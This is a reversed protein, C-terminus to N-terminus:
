RYRERGQAVITAFQRSRGALAQYEVWTFNDPRHERTVAYIWTLERPARGPLDRLSWADLVSFAATSFGIALALSAVALATVGPKRSLARIAMRLDRPLVSM